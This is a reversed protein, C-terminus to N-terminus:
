VGSFTTGDFVRWGNRETKVVWNVCVIVQQQRDTLSDFNKNQKLSM